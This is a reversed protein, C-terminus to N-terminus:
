VQLDLDTRARALRLLPVAGVAVCVNKECTEGRGSDLGRISTRYYTLDSRIDCATEGHMM